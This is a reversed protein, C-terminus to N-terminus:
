KPMNVEAATAGLKPAVVSSAAGTASAKPTAKMTAPTAKPEPTAATSAKGSVASSVQSKVSAGSVSPAKTSGGDSAADGCKAKKAPIESVLTGDLTITPEDMAEVAKFPVLPSSQVLIM